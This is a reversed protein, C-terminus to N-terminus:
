NKITAAIKEAIVTSTDETKFLSILQDEPTMFYIFSSHDMSYEDKAAGEEPPVKAGYIKYSKKVAQIQEVTGTLGVLRKDFLAVYDKLLTPTDREPDITIFIPQIKAQTSEPLAQLAQAIKQLETPCIAPCYSFGFYILKYTHKFDRETRTLGNQDILTYPGGVKAANVTTPVPTSKGETLISIFGIAAGILLGAACLIVTRFLRQKLTM